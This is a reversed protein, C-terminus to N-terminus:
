QRIATGGPGMIGVGMRSQIPTGMVADIDRGMTPNIMQPTAARIAVGARSEIPRAGPPLGGNPPPPPPAEMEAAAAARQQIELTIGVTRSPDVLGPNLRKSLVLREVCERGSADLDPAAVAVRTIRGSASDVFANIGIRVTEVDDSVGQLCASPLGVARRLANAPGGGSARGGATAEPAAPAAGESASTHRPAPAVPRVVEQSVRTRRGTTGSGGGPPTVGTPRAGNPAPMGRSEEAASPDPTCGPGLVIMLAAGCLAALCFTRESHRPM